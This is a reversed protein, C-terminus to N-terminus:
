GRFRKLDRALSAVLRHGALHEEPWIAQAAVEAKGALARPNTAPLRPLRALLEAKLAALSALRADIEFLARGEPLRRRAAESLAFWGHHEALWAERRGWALALRRSQAEAALYAECAALAPDDPGGAPPAILPLAVMDRRSFGELRAAPIAARESRRSM